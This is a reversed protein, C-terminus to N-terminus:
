KRDISVRVLLPEPAGGGSLVTTFRAELLRQM